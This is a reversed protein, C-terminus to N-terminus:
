PSAPAPVGSVTCGLVNDFQALFQAAQDYDFGLAATLEGPNCHLSFTMTDEGGDYDGDADVDAVSWSASCTAPQEPGGSVITGGAGDGLNAVITVYHDQSASASKTGFKISDPINVVGELYTLEDTASECHILQVLPYEALVIAENSGSIIGVSAYPRVAEAEPAISFLVFGAVAIAAPVNKRKNRM